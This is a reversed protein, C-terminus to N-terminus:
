TTCAVGQAELILKEALNLLADESYESGIEYAIVCETDYELWAGDDFEMYFGSQGDPRGGGTPGVSEIGSEIDEIDSM